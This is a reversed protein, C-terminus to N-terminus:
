KIPLFIEEEEMYEKWVGLAIKDKQTDGYVMNDPNLSNYHNGEPDCAVVVEFGNVKARQIAAVILNTCQVKTLNNKM